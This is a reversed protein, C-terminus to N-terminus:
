ALDGITAALRQALHQDTRVKGAHYTRVDAFM